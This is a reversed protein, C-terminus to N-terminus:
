SAQENRSTYTATRDHPQSRTATDTLIQGEKSGTVVVLFPDRSRDNRVQISEGLTGDEKARAVTKIVLGGSVYRVTILQGRRVMLPQSMHRSVLITGSRLVCRAQQGIVQNLDRIPELAVTQLNVERLEVDRANIMQGRSISRTAVVVKIRRTLDATVRYSAVVIGQRYRHIDIPVRGLPGSVTPAFEFRDRGTPQDLTPGDRDFFTIILRGGADGGAWQHLWARLSQGLSMTDEYRGPEINDFDNQSESPTQSTPTSPQDGGAQLSDSSVDLHKSTKVANSLPRNSSGQMSSFIQRTVECQPYGSFTLMGRAAGLAILKENLQAQTITVSTTVSTQSDTSTSLVALVANSWAKAPQGQLDAVDGLRVEVGAVTATAKLRISGTAHPSAGHVAVAVVAPLLLIILVVVWTLFRYIPLNRQTQLYQFSRSQGDTITPEPIM